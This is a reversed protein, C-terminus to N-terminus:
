GEEAQVSIYAAQNIAPRGNWERVKLGGECCRVPKEAGDNDQEGERGNGYQEDNAWQLCDTANSWNGTFVVPFDNNMM